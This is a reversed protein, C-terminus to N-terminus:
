WSTMSATCQKTAVKQLSTHSCSISTQLLVLHETYSHHVEPSADSNEEYATALWFSPLHIKLHSISLFFIIDDEFKLWIFELCLCNYYMIYYM